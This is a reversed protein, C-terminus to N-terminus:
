VPGTSPGEQIRDPDIPSWKSYGMSKNAQSAFYIGKGVLGGSHPMIRLGNKLIAAVVGVNTGHWLLKHNPIKAHRKLRDPEIEASPSKEQIKQALAVDSLVNLTDMKEHLLDLTNIPPPRCRGFSHPMLTYFRSSLFNIDSTKEGKLVDELEDINLSSMVHTFMDRDFIRRVLRLTNEDLKSPATEKEDVSPILVEETRTELVEVMSYKGPQFTFSDRKSWSNKTKDSFKKEFAKIADKLNTLPGLKSSQGTEGVRGWRTWVLFRDPQKLNQLLQIIYFKNNNADINTQNLMCDYDAYVTWSSKDECPSFHKDVSHKILEEVQKLDYVTKRAADRVQNEERTVKAPTSLVQSASKRKPPM